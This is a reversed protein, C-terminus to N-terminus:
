AANKAEAKKLPKADSKLSNLRQQWANRLKGLAEEGLSALTHEKSKNWARLDAESGCKAVEKLLAATEKDVEEQDLSPKTSAWLADDDTSALGLYSVLAYRRGYTMVSGYAQPDFKILPLEVWVRQWSGSPVHTIRTWIPLFAKGGLDTRILIKGAGQTLKFKKKILVPQVKALLAGLSAYRNFQNETEALILPGIAEQVELFAEDFEKSPDGEDPNTYSHSVRRWYPPREIMEAAAEAISESQIIEGTNSDVVEVM